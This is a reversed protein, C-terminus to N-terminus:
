SPSPSPTLAGATALQLTVPLPGHSLVIALSTATSETLEGTM